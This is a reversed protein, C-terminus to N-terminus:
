QPPPQAPSIGQPIAAAPALAPAGPTGPPPPAAPQAPSGPTSTKQLDTQVARAGAARQEDSWNMPQGTIAWMARACESPTGAPWTQGIESRTRGTVFSLGTECYALRLLTMGRRELEQCNAIDEYSKAGNLCEITQKVLDGREQRNLLALRHIDAFDVPKPHVHVSKMLDGLTMANTNLPVTPPAEQAHLPLGIFIALGLSAFFMPIRM